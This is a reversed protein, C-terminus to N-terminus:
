SAARNPDRRVTETRRVDVYDDDREYREDRSQPGYMADARPTAGGLAGGIAAAVLGIITSWFTAWLPASSVGFVRLSAGGAAAQSGVVSNINFVNLLAPVGIGVTAILLLGWITLGNMLGAGWGRTSSLFGSLYGAVFLSVIASIGVYWELNQRVGSVHSGYALAFWLATLLTLLGLGIVAGGFIAGWRIM